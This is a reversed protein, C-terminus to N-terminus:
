RVSGAVWPLTSRWVDKPSMSTSSHAFSHGLAQRFKTCSAMSPTLSLSGDVAAAPAGQQVATAGRISTASQVGTHSVMVSCSITERLDNVSSFRQRCIQHLNASGAAPELCQLLPWYLAPQRTAQPLYRAARRCYQKPRCEYRGNIWCRMRPTVKFSISFVVCVVWLLLLARPHTCALRRLCVATQATTPTFVVIICPCLRCCYCCCMGGLSSEAATCSFVEESVLVAPRSTHSISPVDCSLDPLM